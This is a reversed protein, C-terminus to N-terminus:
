AENYKKKLEEYSNECSFSTGNRMYVRGNVFANIESKVLGVKIKREVYEQTEWWHAKEIEDYVIKNIEVIGKM